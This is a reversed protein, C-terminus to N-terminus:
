YGYYSKKVANEAKKYCSYCYGNSYNGEGGCSLCKHTEHININESVFVVILIVVIILVHQVVWFGKYISSLVINKHYL